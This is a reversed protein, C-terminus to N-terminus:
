WQKAMLEKVSIANLVQSCTEWDEDVVGSYKEDFPNRPIAM